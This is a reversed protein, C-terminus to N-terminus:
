LRSCTDLMWCLAFVGFVALPVLQGLRRARETAGAPIKPELFALDWQAPREPPIDGTDADSGFFANPGPALPQDEAPSTEDPQGPEEAIWETKPLDLLVPTETPEADALADETPAWQTPPPEIVPGPYAPPPGTPADDAGAETERVDSIAHPAHGNACGGDDTVWVRGYCIDCFGSRAVM